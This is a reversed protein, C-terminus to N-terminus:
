STQEARSKGALLAELAVGTEKNIALALALSPTAKGQRIKTIMSRDCGVRAALSSDTLGANSLHEALTIMAAVHIHHVHIDLVHTFSM